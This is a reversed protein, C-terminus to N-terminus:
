LEKRRFVAAALGVLAISLVLATAVPWGVAVSQGAALLAPQGALAAPSYTGLPEWLASISIVAFAGLGIGAAGAQSGVLVSLLTMLCVFLVGFATWAGAAAFLAGAPATGFMWVTGAWTILTGALVTVALFTSHVLAKAAVFAARSVPKTLVLIATGSKSESSVIGGYMIIVAFLAIQSLNKIWQAYSDLYTPAPMAAFAEKMNGPALAGVIEGVYRATVPGTVAFVLLIGPLVWIRWTRVIEIAEKRVFAAFGSV